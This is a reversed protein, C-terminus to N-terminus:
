ARATCPMPPAIIYAVESASIALAKWPLSRPVAKPTKPATLPAATATPGTSPPTMVEPIPHSHIKKTLTGIPAAATNTVSVLTASDRSGSAAPISQPPRTM